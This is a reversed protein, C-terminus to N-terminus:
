GWRLLFWQYHAESEFTIKSKFYTANCKALETDRVEKWKEDDDLGAISDCYDCFKNLLKEPISSVNVVLEAMEIQVM